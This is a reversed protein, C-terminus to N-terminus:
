QMARKTYERILDVDEFFADDIGLRGQNLQLWYLHSAGPTNHPPRQDTSQEGILGARAELSNEPNVGWSVNDAGQGTREAPYEGFDSSPPYQQATVRQYYATSTAEAAAQVGKAVQRSIKRKLQEFNM